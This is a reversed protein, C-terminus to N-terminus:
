PHSSPWGMEMDPHFSYPFVPLIVAPVDKFPVPASTRFTRSTMNPFTAWPTMLDFHLYKLIDTDLSHCQLVAVVHLVMIGYPHRNINRSSRKICIGALPRPWAPSSPWLTQTGAAWTPSRILTKCESKPRVWPKGSYDVPSYVLLNFFFIM